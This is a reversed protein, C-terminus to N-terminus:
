ILRVYRAIRGDLAYGAAEWFAVADAHDREVLASIRRAGMTRLEAEAADVLRRAVGRRRAAPHVALRYMNGRWGDFGAFISGILAGDEIALLVSAGSSGIVLAVADADDTPSPSAGALRWLALVAQVDGVEARRITTV